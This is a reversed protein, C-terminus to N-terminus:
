PKTELVRDPQCIMFSLEGRCAPLGCSVGGWSATLSVLWDANCDTLPFLTLTFRRSVAPRFSCLFAVFSVSVSWFETASLRTTANLHKKYKKSSQKVKVVM